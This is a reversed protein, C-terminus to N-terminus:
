GDIEGRHFERRRYRGASGPSALGKEAGRRHIPRPRSTPINEAEGNRRVAFGACHEFVRELEDFM